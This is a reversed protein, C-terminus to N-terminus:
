IDAMEFNNISHVNLKKPLIHKVNTNGSSGISVPDGLVRTHEILKSSKCKKGKKNLLCAIKDTKNRIAQKPGIGANYVYSKLNFERGLEMALTGGLSHGSLEVKLNKFKRMIMKLYRKEKKYRQGLKLTGSAILTDSLVDSKNTTGRIAIIVRDSGIWFGHEPNSLSVNYKYEGVHSRESPKKYVESSVRAEVPGDGSQVQKKYTKKAEKLAEGYTIGKEMQVKKVHLIWKNNSM